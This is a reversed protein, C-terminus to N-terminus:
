KGMWEEDKEITTFGDECVESYSNQAGSEFCGSTGKVTECNEDVEKM